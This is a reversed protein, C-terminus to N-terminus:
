AELPIESSSIPSMDELSDSDLPTSVTHFKILLVEGVLGGRWRGEEERYLSQRGERNLLGTRVASSPLDATNDEKEKCTGKKTYCEAHVEAKKTCM